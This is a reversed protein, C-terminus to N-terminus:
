ITQLNMLAQMSSFLVLCSGQGSLVCIAGLMWAPVKALAAHESSVMLATMTQGIVILVGGILVTKKPDLWKLLFGPLIGFLASGNLM